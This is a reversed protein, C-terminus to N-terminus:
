VKSAQLSMVPAWVALPMQPLSRPHKRPEVGSGAQRFGDGQLRLGERGTRTDPRLSECRGWFRGEYLRCLLARPYNQPFLELLGAYDPEDGRQLSDVLVFRGGPKLVRACEGFIIRRVKPPLEHFMFISTV